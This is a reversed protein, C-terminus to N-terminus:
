RYFSLYSDTGSYDNCYLKTEGECHKKIVENNSDKDSGVQIRVMDNPLRFSLSIEKMDPTSQWQYSYLYKTLDVGGVILSKTDQTDIIKIVEKDHM